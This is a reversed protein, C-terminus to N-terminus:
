RGNGEKGVRREESRVLASTNSSIVPQLVKSCGCTSCTSVVIVPAGSGHEVTYLRSSSSCSRRSRLTLVILMFVPAVDILVVVTEVGVASELLSRKTLYSLITM